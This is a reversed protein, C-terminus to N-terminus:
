HERLARSREDRRRRIYNACARAALFPVTILCPGVVLAAAPHAVGLILRQAILDLLISFLFLNILQARVERKGSMIGLSIAVVPQFIFRMRGPGSLRRPLDDLFSRSFMYLDGTELAHRVAGPLAAFLVAVTCAALVVTFRSSSM